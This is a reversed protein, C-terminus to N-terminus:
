LQIGPLWLPAANETVGAVVVVYVTVPVFALPHVAVAVFVIVTFGSGVTVAFAELEEMQVPLLTVSVAVPALM